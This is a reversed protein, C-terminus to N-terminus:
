KLSWISKGNASHYDYPTFWDFVKGDSYETRQRVGLGSGLSIPQIFGGFKDAYEDAKEKAREATLAYFRVKGVAYCYALTNHAISSSNQTLM